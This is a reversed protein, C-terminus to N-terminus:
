DSTVALRYNKIKFQEIFGLKLYLDKGMDSAQLTVYDSKNKIAMDLLTKMLKNAFGKRREEPIIGMAHIGTINDTQYTIATGIAKNEFYAIYYNINKFTNILINPHIEYGFTPTFLKSWTIAENKNSVLNIKLDSQEEFPQSLKLSMGIQEFLKIFGNQELLPSTTSGKTDWCTVVLNPFNSLVENKVQSINEQNFEQNFWLRNPWNLNEVASYNFLSSRSFSNNFKSAEEWLSTLNRINQNILTSKNKM